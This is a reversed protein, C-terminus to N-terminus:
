EEDEDETDDEENEDMKEDKPKEEDAPKAPARQGPAVVPPPPADPDPEPDQPAGVKALMWPRQPFQLVGSTWAKGMADLLVPSVEDSVGFALSPTFRDAIEKGWNIETGKYLLDNRVAEHLPKRAQTVAMKIFSEATGTDAKSSHKAEQMGRAGIIITRFIERDSWDFGKLYASGDGQSYFLQYTDGHALALVSRNSFQQGAALLRQQPTTESGDAEIAMDAAPGATLVQKPDAFHKLYEAYDPIAQLKINWAPYAPRLLRTGRPDGCRPQWSMLVFHSRDVDVWGNVTWARIKRVRLYPDALM